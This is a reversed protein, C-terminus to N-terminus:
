RQAYEKFSEKDHQFMSQLQRRDPAMDMNYKYHKIFADSLDQFCRIRNQDLSLYWKSPAGSLSDQFYHIMLKDDEVHAAM